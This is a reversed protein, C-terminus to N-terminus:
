NGDLIATYTYQTTASISSVETPLEKSMQKSEDALIVNTKGDLFYENYKPPNHINPGHVGFVVHDARSMGGFKESDCLAATLYVFSEEADTIKISFVPHVSRELYYHESLEVSCSKGIQITEGPSYVIPVTHSEDLVSIISNYWKIDNESHPKPLYIERIMYADCIRKVTNPHYQHYHTLILKEIETGMQKEIENYATIFHEMGGSSIDIVTKENVNVVTLMESKNNKLYSVTSIDSNKLNFCLLCVSFALVAAAAPVAILWRHRLYKLAFIVTVALMPIIIFKVFDYNLSVTIGRWHSMESAVILFIDVTFNLLFIFVSSVFPIWSLILLLAGLILVLATPISFILNSLVAIVSIEGFAIWVFAITGVTAGVTAAVASLLHVSAQIYIPKKKLKFTLPSILEAVVILSLTAFFSMWFGIDFFGSPCVALIVFAALFLSTLGDAEESIIYSFYVMCAMIVARVASLSFGTVALYIVACIILIVSRKARDVNLGRMFLDIGGLIVSVHLGSLALMHSIGIRRFDRETESELDNRNGLLMAKTLSSAEPSLLSDLKSSLYDSIKEFFSYLPQNVKEGISVSDTDKASLKMSFGDALLYAERGELQVATGSLTFEDLESLPSETDFEIITKLSVREGNIENVVAEVCSSYAKSYRIETVHGSIAVERGVYKQATKIDKQFFSYSSTLLVSILLLSIAIYFYFRAFRPHRKTRTKLYIGRISTSVALIVCVAILVINVTPSLFISLGMFAIAVFISIALYRNKLLLM